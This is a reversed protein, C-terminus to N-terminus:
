LVERIEICYLAEVIRKRLRYARDLRTPPSKVDETILEGTALEVYRFDARFRGVKIGNVMLAFHPQLELDAIEGLEGRLLLLQYRHAEKKSDFLIGLYETKTAHFKHAKVRTKGVTVTHTRPDWEKWGAFGNSM